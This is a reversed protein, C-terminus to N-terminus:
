RINMNRIDKQQGGGVFSPKTGRQTVPGGHGQEVPEFDPYPSDKRGTDPVFGRLSEGRLERLGGGEV